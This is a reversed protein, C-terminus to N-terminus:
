IQISINVKIQMKSLYKINQLVQFIINYMNDMIIIWNNLTSLLFRCLVIHMQLKANKFHVIKKEMKYLSCSGKKPQIFHMVKFVTGIHEPHIELEDFYDVVSDYCASLQRYRKLRSVFEEQTYLMKEADSEPLEQVRKILFDDPGDLVFIHELFLCFIFYRSWHMM